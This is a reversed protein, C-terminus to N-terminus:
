TTESAPGYFMRQAKTKNVLVRPARAWRTLSSVKGLSDHQVPGLYTGGARGVPAGSALM